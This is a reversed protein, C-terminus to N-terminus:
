LPMLSVCSKRKQNKLWEPRGLVVKNERKEEGAVNQWSVLRLFANTVHM